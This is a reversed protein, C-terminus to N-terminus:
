ESPAERLRELLARAGPLGSAALTRVEQLGRRDRRDVRELIAQAGRADGRMLATRMAIIQARADDARVEPLPARVVKPAPPAPPVPPSVSEPPVPPAVTEVVPASAVPVLPESASCARGAMMPLSAAVAVLVVPLGMWSTPAEPRPEGLSVGPASAPGVAESPEACPEAVLVWLPVACLAREEGEEVEVRARAEELKRRARRLIEVVTAPSRKVVRGVEQVTLGTGEYLIFAEREREPLEDLLRRALMLRDAQAPTFSSPPGGDEGDVFPVDAPRRRKEQRITLATWRAFARLWPILPRSPDYCDIRESFRLLVRGVADDLDRWVGCARLTSRVAEIEAQTVRPVEAVDM